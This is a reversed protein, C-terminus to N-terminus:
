INLFSLNFRFCLHVYRFNVIEIDMVIGKFKFKFPFVFGNGLLSNLVTKALRLFTKNLARNNESHM